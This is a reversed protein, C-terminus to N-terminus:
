EASNYLVSNVKALLAKASFPKQIFQLGKNLV